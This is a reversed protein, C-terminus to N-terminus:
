LPLCHHMAKGKRLFRPFLQVRDFVLSNDELGNAM